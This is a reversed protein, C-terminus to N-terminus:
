GAVQSSIRLGKKLSFLSWQCSDYCSGPPDGQKFLVTGAKCYISMVKVFFPAKRWRFWPRKLNQTNTPTVLALTLALQCSVNLVCHMYNLLVILCAHLYLMICGHIDEITTSPDRKLLVPSPEPTIVKTHIIM